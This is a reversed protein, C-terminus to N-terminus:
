HQESSEKWHKGSDQSAHCLVESLVYAITMPIPQTSWGSPPNLPIVALWPEPLPPAGHADDDRAGSSNSRSFDREGAISARRVSCKELRASFTKGSEGMIADRLATASLLRNYSCAQDGAKSSFVRKQAQM